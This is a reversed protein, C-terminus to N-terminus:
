QNKVHVLMQSDFITTTGADTGQTATIRLTQKTASSVTAQFWVFGIDTADLIDTVPSQTVTGAALIQPTPTRVNSADQTEWLWYGTLGTAGSVGARVDQATASSSAAIFGQITYNVGPEMDFELGPIATHTTDVEALDTTQDIVALVAGREIGVQIGM